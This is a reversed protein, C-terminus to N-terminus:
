DNDKKSEMIFRSIVGISRDEKILNSTILKIVEDFTFWQCSIFEGEELHQGEELFKFDEILFYYLDWIITSGAKSIYYLYPNNVEIGVEEFLEKKIAVNVDSLISDKKLAGRYEELKDYVKGGPLRYDWDQLEYRYEKTLLM